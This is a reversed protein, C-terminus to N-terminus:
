RLAGPQVDYVALRACNPYFTYETLTYRLGTARRTQSASTTLEFRVERVM